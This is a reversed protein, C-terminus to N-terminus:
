AFVANRQAARRSIANKERKRGTKGSPDIPNRVRAALTEPSTV